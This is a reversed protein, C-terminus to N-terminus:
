FRPELGTVFSCARESFSLKCSKIVKFHSLINVIHIHSEISIFLYMLDHILQKQLEIFSSGTWLRRVKVVIYRLM